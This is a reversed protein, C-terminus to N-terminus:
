CLPKGQFGNCGMPFRWPYRKIQIGQFTMRVLWKLIAGRRRNIINFLLFSAGAGAKWETSFPHPAHQGLQTKAGKLGPLPSHTAWGPNVHTTASAAFLRHWSSTAFSSSTDLTSAIGKISSLDLMEMDHKKSLSREWICSIWSNIFGIGFVQRCADKGFVIIESITKTYQKHHNRTTM